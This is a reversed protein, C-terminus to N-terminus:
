LTLYTSKISSESITLETSWLQLIDEQKTTKPTETSLGDQSETPQELNVDIM